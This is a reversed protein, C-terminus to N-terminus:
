KSGLVKALIVILGITWGLSLVVLVIPLVIVRGRGMVRKFLPNQRRMQLARAYLFFAHPIWLFAFPVTVYNVGPIFVSIAYLVALGDPRPLSREFAQGIRTKGTSNLYDASYIKGNLDISCLPPIYDGTGSCVAIAKKKPHHICTADDPLALEAEQM